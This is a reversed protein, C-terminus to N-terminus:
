RTWFPSRRFGEVFLTVDELAGDRVRFKFDGIVTDLVRGGVGSVSLAMNGSSSLSIGRIRGRGFSAMSATDDVVGVMEAGTLGNFARLRAVGDATTVVDCSLEEREVSRTALVVEVRSGDTLVAAKGQPAEGNALTKRWVEQFRTGEDRLLVVASPTDRVRRDGGTVVLLHPEARGPFPFVVPPTLVPHEGGLRHAVRWEWSGPTSLLLRHIQGHLDAVYVRTVVDVAGSTAWAPRWPVAATAASNKPIQASPAPQVRYNARVRGDEVSLALLWEGSDDELSGNGAPLFTVWESGAESFVEAMLPEPTEGLERVDGPGGGRNGVNFLLRPLGPGGWRLRPPDNGGTWGDGVDSVDLGTVFRGGVSRGFSLVTRWEQAGPLFVDRVTPSGALTFRNVLGRQLGTAGRIGVRALDRLFTRHSDTESSAPGLVEDPIYAFVEEGTDGAFAHLMGGHTPLYVMTRRNVHRAFFTRYRERNRSVRDPHRPPNTVVAPSALGERLKWTGRGGSFHLDGVPGYITGTDPHVSLEEGRILRVVIHVADEASRAGTGDLDSLYGASVGLDRPTVEGIRFPRLERSGRRNFLVLRGDPDREALRAGADWVPTEGLGGESGSLTALARLRGRLAGLDASTSILINDPYAARLRLVEERPAGEGAPAVLADAPLSPDSGVFSSGPSSAVLEKVTALRPPALKVDGPPLTIEGLVQDLAQRLSESRDAFIAPHRGHSAMWALHNTYGRTQQNSIAMGVVHIDGLGADPDGRNLALYAAKAKLGANWAAFSQRTPSEHLVPQPSVEGTRLSVADDGGDGAPGDNFDFWSHLVCECTDMGDTILVIVNKQGPQLDDTATGAIHTALQYLAIGNPTRNTNLATPLKRLLGDRGAEADCGSLDSLIRVGGCRVPSVPPGPPSGSPLGAGMTRDACIQQRSSGDEAQQFQKFAALRWHVLPEGSESELNGVAWRIVERAADFRRAGGEGLPWKMSESTDLLIWVRPRTSTRVIGLPDPRGERPAGLERGQGAPAGAVGFPVVGSAPTGTLVLGIALAGARCRAEQTNSTAM